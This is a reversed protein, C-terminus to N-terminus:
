TFRFALNAGRFSGQRVKTEETVTTVPFFNEKAVEVFVLATLETDFTLMYDNVTVLM